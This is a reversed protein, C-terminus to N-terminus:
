EKIKFSKVKGNKTQLYGRQPVQLDLYLSFPLECTREKEGQQFVGYCKGSRKRKQKAVLLYYGSIEQKAEKSLRIRSLRFLLLGIM